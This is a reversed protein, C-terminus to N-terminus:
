HLYSIIAKDIPMITLNSELVYPYCIITIAVCMVIRLATNSNNCKKMLLMFTTCVIVCAFPFIIDKYTVKVGPYFELKCIYSVVSELLSTSYFLIFYIFMFKTTKKYGADMQESLGKRWMNILNLM